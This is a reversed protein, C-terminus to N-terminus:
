ESRLIWRSRKPLKQPEERLVGELYILAEQRMVSRLHNAAFTPYLIQRHRSYGISFTLGALLLLLGVRRVRPWLLLSLPIALLFATEGPVTSPIVAVAQGVLLSLTPVILWLSPHSLATVGDNLGAKNCEM